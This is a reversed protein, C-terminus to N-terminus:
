KDKKITVAGAKNRTVQVGEHILHGVNSPLLEKIKDTATANTKMADMTELWVDLNSTMEPAWNPLVMGNAALEKLDIKQMIEAVQAKAEVKVPAVGGPPTRTEVLKWFKQARDWLTSWYFDDFEIPFNVAENAGLIVRLLCKRTGTVFMQWHMQPAYKALVDPIKRYAGCHKCDIPLNLVTDFADLTAAAWPFQPHIAIDGVRKLANEKYTKIKEIVLNGTDDTTITASEILAGYGNARAYWHLSLIETHSGLQVPWVDDLNNPEHLPDNTLEYYLNLIDAESGDMLIGIVSGTLKGERAARQEKTLAM